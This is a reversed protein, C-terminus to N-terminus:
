RTSAADDELGRGRHERAAFISGVIVRGADVMYYCYAGARAARREGRPRAAHRARHRRGGGRARRSFDWGLEADWLACEEDLLPRLERPSAERLPRTRM